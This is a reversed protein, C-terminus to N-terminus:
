EGTIVTCNKMWVGLINLSSFDLTDVRTIGGNTKAAALSMDGWSALGLVGTACSQGTRRGPRAGDTVMARTGPSVGKAGTYAVGPPPMHGFTACGVSTSLAATLAILRLTHGMACSYAVPGPRPLRLPGRHLEGPM